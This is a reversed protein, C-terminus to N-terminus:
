STVNKNYGREGYPQLKELWMEELLNLDETYDYDPDEKPELFDIVEFLFNEEKYNNFDEQLAKNMHSGMELQFKVSNLKGKLNKSSGIFLKGNAINKIQFIGMPPLSQLYQKKLKKKDLINVKSNIEGKTSSKLM